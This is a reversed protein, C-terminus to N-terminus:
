GVGAGTTEVELEASLKPQWVLLKWANEVGNVAVGFDDGFRPPGSM